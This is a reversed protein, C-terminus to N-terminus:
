SEKNRWAAGFLMRGTLDELPVTKGHGDPSVACIQTNITAHEAIYQRCLCCPFWPPDDRTMVVLAEIVGEPEHM